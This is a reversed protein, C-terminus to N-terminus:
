RTYQANFLVEHTCNRRTYTCSFGSLQQHSQPQATSMTSSPDPSAAAARAQEGWSQMTADEEGVAVANSLTLQYLRDAITALSPRDTHSSFRLLDGGGGSGESENRTRGKCECGTWYWSKTDLNLCSSRGHM